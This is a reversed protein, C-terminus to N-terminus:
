FEESLDVKPTYNKGNMNELVKILAQTGARGLKMEDSLKKYLSHVLELGPLRIKMRSCEELAIELDKIFHDVYFGPRFDGKEIRPCLNNMASSQAAGGSILEIVKKVDLGVSHGYVLSECLGIMTGAIALQNMTKTHQGCGAKGFLQINKSYCKMVDSAQQFHKEDGGCMVVLQGNRAGIDGGSVPCDFSYVGRSHCAEYIRLALSPSSTTHDVVTAGKKLHSILANPGSIMVEEVDKPYGLMLFLIDAQKAMEIPDTFVAGAQILDNAKSATRTYIMPKYGKDLLHKVMSKGMVGTGIWGIKLNGHLASPPHAAIEGSKKRSLGEPAHVDEGSKKRTIGEPFKVDEGSKKRTITGHDHGHGVNDGSKKREAM